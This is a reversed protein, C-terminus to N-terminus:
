NWNCVNTPIHSILNARKIKAILYCHHCRKYIVNNIVGRSVHIVLDLFAEDVPMKAM